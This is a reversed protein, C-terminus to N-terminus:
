RSENAIIKNRLRTTSYDALMPVLRIEGGYSELIEGGVVAEKAYDAGKALIDPRLMKILDSPTDDEFLIIMDVYQLSALLSARDKEGLVPRDPGKIRRVSADSNLGVVLRDGLDKAHRLLHIHGPHLLDFCGNTFVIKQGAAKWAGVQMMAAPGSAIKHMNDGTIGDLGSTLLSAKLEFLNIPQTGLKGVVIGAALNAVKAAEPFALGCGVCLALTSVVTDGAGSVDYVQRAVTPIFIPKSALDMICMGLAGRTVVLWELKYETMVSQMAEVLRDENSISEGYVMELEMTNPTVCTALKYREWDKGKPDIIVPINRKSALAIVAQALGDTQLLGKGYDSLIVADCNPIAAQVLGILENKNPISVPRIDEEDLRLLQQGQSVIRTKTITSRDHDVLLHSHINAKNFQRVLSQGPADNGRIGLITVTCGLNALNLVVNGAGGAAESQRLKRFIPVPAEPSIREVHGWLYTDLMIDGIVLIHSRSFKELDFASM